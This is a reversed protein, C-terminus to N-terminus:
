AFQLLNHAFHEIKNKELAAQERYFQQEWAFLAKTELDEDTALPPLPASLTVTRSGKKNKAGAKKLYKSAM